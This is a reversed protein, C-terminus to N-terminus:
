TSDCGDDIWWFEYGYGEFFARIEPCIENCFFEFMGDKRSRRRIRHLERNKIAHKMPSDYSHKDAVPKDLGYQELGDEVRVVHWDPNEAVLDMLLRYSTQLQEMSQLKRGWYTGWTGIPSRLQVYVEGPAEKAKAIIADRRPGTFHDWIIPHGAEEHSHQTWRTGSHPVTLLLRLKMGKDM